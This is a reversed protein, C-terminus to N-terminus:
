VQIDVSPAPPPTSPVNIAVKLSSTSFNAPPPPTSATESTTKIEEVEQPKVPKNGTAESTAPAVAQTQGNGLNEIIAEQEAKKAQRKAEEQEEVAEEYQKEKTENVANNFVKLSDNTEELISKMLADKNMIQQDQNSLAQLSLSVKTSAEAKKEEFEAKNAQAKQKFEESLADNKARMKEISALNAAITGTEQTSSIAEM